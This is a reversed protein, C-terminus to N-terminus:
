GQDLYAKAIDEKYIMLEAPETNRTAYIVFSSCPKISCHTEDIPDAKVGIIGNLIVSAALMTGAPLLEFERGYVHGCDNPLRYLSQEGWALSPVPM